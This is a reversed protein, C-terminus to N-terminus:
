RDTWAMAWLPMVATERQLRRCLLPFCRWGKHGKESRQLDLESRSGRIQACCRMKEALGEANQADHPRTRWVLDAINPTDASQMASGRKNSSRLVPNKLNRSTRTVFTCVAHLRTRAPEVTFLPRTRGQQRLHFCNRNKALDQGQEKKNDRLRM